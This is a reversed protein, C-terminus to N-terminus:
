CDRNASVIEASCLATSATALLCPCKFMSSFTAPMKCTGLTSAGPMNNTSQCRLECQEEDLGQIGKRSLTSAEAASVARDRTVYLLKSRFKWTLANPGTNTVLTLSM